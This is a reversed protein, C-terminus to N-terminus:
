KVGKKKPKEAMLMQSLIITKTIKGHFENTTIGTIAYYENEVKLVDPPQVFGFRRVAALLKTISMAKM